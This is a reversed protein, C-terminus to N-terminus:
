AGSPRGGGMRKMVVVATEQEGSRISVERDPYFGMLPGYLKAARRTSAVLFPTSFGRQDFHRLTWKIIQSGHGRGQADPHVGLYNPRMTLPGDASAVPEDTVRRFWQYREVGEPGLAAHMQQKREEPLEAGFWRWIMVAQRDPSAFVSGCGSELTGRIVAEFFQMLCEKNFREGFSYALVIDTKLSEYLVRWQWEEPHTILLPAETDHIAPM